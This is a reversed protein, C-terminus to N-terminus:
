VSTSTTQLKGNRIEIAGPAYKEVLPDHSVVLVTQGLDENLEQFIELIVETSEQDLNGTPEDALILSPENGLARAIGVRQKEGGSLQRPYHNLRHGLGVLELLHEAREERERKTRSSFKLPFLVNEFATLHELLHFSQFIFGLEFRRIRAMERSSINSLNKENLWIEGSTPTELGGLLSLLTTKGSGSPGTVAIFDGKRIQLSVNRVADVVGHSTHYRKTLNKCELVVEM